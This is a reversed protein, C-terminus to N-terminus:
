FAINFHTKQLPAVELTGTQLAAIAEVVARAGAMTTYHPIGQMLATRRLSFSDHVIQAGEATTNIVLQIEGNIMSDVVHPQGEFVKNVRGVAVGAQELVTATGGTAV